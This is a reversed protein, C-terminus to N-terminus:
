APLRGQTFAMGWWQWPLSAADYFGWLRKPALGTKLLELIVGPPHPDMNGRFFEAVVHVNLANLRTVHDPTFLGGQRGEIALYTDRKPSRARWRELMPVFWDPHTECNLCVKPYSGATGPAIRVQVQQYVWDAWARPSTTHHSPWGEGQSCFYLGPNFGKAKVADLYSRTMRPDRVDFYADTIQKGSLAAYNADNGHDVWIARM